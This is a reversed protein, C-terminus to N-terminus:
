RELRGRYRGTGGAVNIINFGNEKLLSCAMSSRAGSHCIVYYEKSKSLYKEPQKLIIDMPINKATPLHGGRYEYTERIDILDIEGILEDIDNVDISKLINRMM